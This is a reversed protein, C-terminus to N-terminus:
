KKNEERGFQCKATDVLERIEDIDILGPDFFQRYLIDMSCEYRRKTTQIIAKRDEFHHTQYEGIDPSVEQMRILLEYIVFIPIPHEKPTNM